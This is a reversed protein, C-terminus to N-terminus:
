MACVLPPQPTAPLFVVPCVVAGRLSTSHEGQPLPPLRPPAFGPLAGDPPAAQLCARGGQDRPLQTLALCLVALSTLPAYRGCPLVRRRPPHPTAPWPRGAPAIPAPQAFRPWLPLCKHEPGPHSPMAGAASLRCSSVALGRRHGDALRARDSSGAAESFVRGHRGGRLLCTNPVWHAVVFLPLYVSLPAHVCVSCSLPQSAFVMLALPSLGSRREALSAGAPMAAAMAAALAQASQAAVSMGQGYVQM